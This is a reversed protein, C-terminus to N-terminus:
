ESLIETNGKKRYYKSYQSKVVEDKVEKLVFKAFKTKKQKRIKWDEM